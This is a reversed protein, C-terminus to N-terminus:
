FLHREFRRARNADLPDKDSIQVGAGPHHLPLTFFIYCIAMESLSAGSSIHRCLWNPAQYGM